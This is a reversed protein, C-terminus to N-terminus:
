SACTGFVTRLAEASNQTTGGCRCPAPEGSQDVCNTDEDLYSRIGCDMAPSTFDLCDYGPSLQAAMEAFAGMAAECANTPSAEADGFVFEIQHGARCSSPIITPVAPGGAGWYATSFVMEFHPTVGPDTQTVTVPFPAFGTTICDTLETWNADDYPWPPLTRPGDLVVSLNMTADDFAGLDYDGGQRDLFVTSPACSSDAAVGHGANGCAAVACVVFWAGRM